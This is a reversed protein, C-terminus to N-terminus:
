KSGYHCDCIKLLHVVVSFCKIGTANKHKIKQQQKGNISQNTNMSQMNEFSIRNECVIFNM